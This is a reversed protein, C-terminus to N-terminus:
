TAAIPLLHYTELDEPSCAQLLDEIHLHVRHPDASFIDSLVANIVIILVWNGM